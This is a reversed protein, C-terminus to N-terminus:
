PKTAYPGTAQVDAEASVTDLASQATATRVDNDNRQAELLAVLPIGGKRYAYTLSELSERSQKTIKQTYSRWKDSASHYTAWAQNADSIVLARIKAMSLEATSKQARAAAIAGKNQNWIPLPISFGIGTSNPQDPPQHEYQLQLTVDPVRGAKALRLNAEMQRVIAEAAVLDPREGHAGTREKAVQQALEALNQSLVLNGTPKTEGMLLQLTIRATRANTEEVERDAAFREAAIEIQQKDSKSVDGAELRRAAIEAEHALTNESEKLIGVLEDEQLVKAYAKIVGNKLQREADQFTAEASLLGEKAALQRWKRKGGLEILQGVTSITDFPRSWLSNSHGTKNSHGDVNIKATGLSLTPNPFEKAILEQARNLDINSKAALLDWNHIVAARIAERLSIGSRGEAKKEAALSTGSLSVVLASVGAFVTFAKAPRFTRLANKFQSNSGDMSMTHEHSDRLVLYFPVALFQSDVLVCATPVVRAWISHDMILLLALGFHM